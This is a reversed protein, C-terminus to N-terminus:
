VRNHVGPKFGRVQGANLMIVDSDDSDEDEDGDDVDADWGSDDGDDEENNHNESAQTCKDDGIHQRPDTMAVARIPVGPFGPQDRAAMPSSPLFPNRAPLRAWRARARAVDARTKDEALNSAIAKLLQDKTVLESPFFAKGPWKVHIFKELGKNPRGMLEAFELELEKYEQSYSFAVFAKALYLRAVLRSRSDDTSAPLREDILCVLLHQKELYIFPKNDRKVLRLYADM